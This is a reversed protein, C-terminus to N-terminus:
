RRNLRKARLQERIREYRDEVYENYRARQASLQSVREYDGRARASRQSRDIRAFQAHYRALDALSDMIIPCIESGQVRLDRPTFGPPIQAAGVIQLRRGEAGLDSPRLAGFWMVAVAFRELESDRSGPNDRGIELSPWLEGEAKRHAVFARVAQRFDRLGQNDCLVSADRVAARMTDRADQETIAATGANCGMLSACTAIILAPFLMKGLM